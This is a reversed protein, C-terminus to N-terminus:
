PSEEEIIQKIEVHNEIIRAIVIHIDITEFHPGFWLEIWWEIQRYIPTKKGVNVGGIWTFFCPIKCIWLGMNMSMDNERMEEWEGIWWWLGVFMSLWWWWKKLEFMYCKCWFLKYNLGIGVLKNRTERRRHRGFGFLDEFVKCWQGWKLGLLQGFCM